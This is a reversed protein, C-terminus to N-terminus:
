LTPSKAIVAECADHIRRLTHFDWEAGRYILREDVLMNM